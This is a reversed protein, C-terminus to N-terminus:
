KIGSGPRVPRDPMILSIGNEDQAALLMGNSKIGRIIAPELNNVMVIDKGVLEDKTYYNKIGAVIEKKGGSSSEGKISERGTDVELILLKDASPHDRVNEIRATIIELKKFDDFSIM